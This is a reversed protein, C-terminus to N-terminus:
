EEICFLHKEGRIFLQKGAPAPTADVTEGVSNSAVVEFTEGDKLVVTRGSRGTLFVYGGAAVPSAYISSLGPVRTASFFPKGTKADLCSIVGSKGKHFYLRGDSLLPSAIDPTDRSVSWVVDKTGSIDGKSDARFAGLFSGRFGSGVYVMGDQYVASACPRQTQGGCRWLEKGSELDYGRAFNQGNMVIQKQEGNPFVLPTSWNTPEDRETKWITKGTMKDLAYIASPGDHDWPVIIKDGAITPSSGEGFANRTEMKGFDTRRWVPQGDMTFCHLGRSGFFAYVHKGDTCPSASAFNNTSHVGQHPTATVATQQWLTEGTERDFCLLVFDTQTLPTSRRGRRGSSEGPEVSPAAPIATVVFVRNGWVVPSGSGKGDIAVKWKVNKTDSWETPPTADTSVGNGLPGRWHGWDDGRSVSTGSLTLSVTLLLWLRFRKEFDM